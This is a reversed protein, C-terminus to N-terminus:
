VPVLVLKGAVHGSQGTRHAEAVDDLGVPRANVTLQGQEV